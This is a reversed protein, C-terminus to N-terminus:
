APDIVISLMMLVTVYYWDMISIDFTMNYIDKLVYLINSHGHRDRSGQQTVLVSGYQLNGGNCWFLLSLTNNRSPNMLIVLRSPRHLPVAMDTTLLDFDIM